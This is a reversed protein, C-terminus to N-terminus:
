IKWLAQVLLQLRRLGLWQQLHLKMGDQLKKVKQRLGERLKLFLILFMRLFVKKKSNEINTTSPKLQLIQVKVANKFIISSM